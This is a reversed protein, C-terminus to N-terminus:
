PELRRQYFIANNLGFIYYCANSLDSCLNPEVSPRKVTRAKSVRVDKGCIKVPVDIEAVTGYLVIILAVCIFYKMKLIPSM